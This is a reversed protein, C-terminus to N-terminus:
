EHSFPLFLVLCLEAFIVPNEFALLSFCGVVALFSSPHFSFGFCSALGHRSRGPRRNEVGKVSFVQVQFSVGQFSTFPKPYFIPLISHRQPSQGPDNSRSNM